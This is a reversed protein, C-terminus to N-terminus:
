HEEINIVTAELSVHVKTKNTATLFTEEKDTIIKLDSCTYTRTKRKGDKRWSVMIVPSNDKESESVKEQVPVSKRKTQEPTVITSTEVVSSTTAIIKENTEKKTAM